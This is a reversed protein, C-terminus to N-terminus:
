SVLKHVLTLDSFDLRQWATISLLLVTGLQCNDNLFLQATAEDAAIAQFESYAVDHLCWSRYGSSIDELWFPHM